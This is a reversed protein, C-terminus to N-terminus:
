FCIFVMQSDIWHKQVKVEFSLETEYKQLKHWRKISHNTLWNEGSNRSKVTDVFSYIISFKLKQLPLSFTPFMSNPMLQQFRSWNWISYIQTFKFNLVSPRKKISARWLDRSKLSIPPIRIRVRTSWSTNFSKRDDDNMHNKDEFNGWYRHYGWKAIQPRHNHFADWVEPQFSILFHTM